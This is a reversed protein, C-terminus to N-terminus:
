LLVTELGLSRICTMGPNYANALALQLQVMLEQWGLICVQMSPTQSMQTTLSRPLTDLVVTAGTGNAQNAVQAMMMSLSTGHMTGVWHRSMQITQWFIQSLTFTKQDLGFSAMMKNLMHTDMIMSIISTPNHYHTAVLQSILTPDLTDRLEGLIVSKSSSKATQLSQTTLLHMNTAILLARTMSPITVEMIAPLEQLSSVM